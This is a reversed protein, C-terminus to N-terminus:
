RFLVDSNFKQFNAILGAYMGAAEVEGEGLPILSPHSIQSSHAQGQFAQFPIQLCPDM